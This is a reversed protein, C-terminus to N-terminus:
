NIYWQWHAIEQAVIAHNKQVHPKPLLPVALDSLSNKM